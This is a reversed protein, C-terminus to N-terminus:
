GWLNLGFVRVRFSGLTLLTRSTPDDGEGGEAKIEDKGSEDDDYDSERKRKGLNERHVVEDETSRSLSSDVEEKEVDPLDDWDEPDEWLDDDWFRLIARFATIEEGPGDGDWDFTRYWGGISARMFPFLKGGNLRYIYAVDAMKVSLFALLSQKRPWQSGRPRLINLVVKKLGTLRQIMGYLCSMAELMELTSSHGEKVSAAVREGIQRLPGLIEDIMRRRRFAAGIGDPIRALPRLFDNFEAYVLDYDVPEPPQARLREEEM